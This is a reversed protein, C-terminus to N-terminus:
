AHSPYLAMGRARLEDLIPFIPLGLASHWSGTMSEILKIGRGELYYCAVSSLPSEEAVYAAVQERPLRRLSLRVRSISARLLKGSVLIAIGNVLEHPLEQFSMLREVAQEPSSVKRLIRGELEVVQDCAILMRGAIAEKHEDYAARAKAEACRLVYTEADEGPLPGPEPTSGTLVEFPLGADKLIQARIASGSALVLTV